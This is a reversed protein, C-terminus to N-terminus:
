SHRRSCDHNASYPNLTFGKLSFHNEAPNTDAGAPSEFLLISLYIITQSEAKTNVDKTNM